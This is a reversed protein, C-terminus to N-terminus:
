HRKRLKRTICLHNSAHIGLSIITACLSYSIPSISNKLSLLHDRSYFIKVQSSQQGLTIVHDSANVNFNLIPTVTKNQYLRAAFLLPLFQTLMNLRHVVYANILVFVYLSFLSCSARFLVEPRTSLCLSVTNTRSAVNFVHCLDCLLFRLLLCRSSLFVGVFLDVNSVPLM